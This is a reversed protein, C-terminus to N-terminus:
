PVWLSMATNLLAWWRERDLTLRIWDLNEFGSGRFNMKINDQCQKRLVHGISVGLLAFLLDSTWRGYTTLLM